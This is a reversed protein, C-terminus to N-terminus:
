TVVGAAVDRTGWLKVGKGGIRVRTMYPRSICPRRRGQFAADWSSM